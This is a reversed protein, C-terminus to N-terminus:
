RLANAPFPPTADKVDTAEGAMASLREPTLALRLRPFLSDEEAAFHRELDLMLASARKAFALGTPALTQMEALLENIEDHEGLRAFTDTEASPLTARLAPFLIRQEAAEHAALEQVLRVYLERLVVPQDTEDLQQALDSIVRHDHILLEIVDHPGDM